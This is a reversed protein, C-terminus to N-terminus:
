PSPMPTANQAVDTVADMAGALFLSGAPLAVQDTLGAALVGAVTLMTRLVAVRASRLRRIAVGARPGTAIAGAPFAAVTVGHVANSM